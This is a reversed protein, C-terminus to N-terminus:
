TACKWASTCLIQMSDRKASGHRCCTGMSIQSLRALYWSGKRLVEELSCLAIAGAQWTLVMDKRSRWLPLVSLCDDTCLQMRYRWEEGDFAQQEPGLHLGVIEQLRAHVDRDDVYTATSNRSVTLRAPRRLDIRATVLSQSFQARPSAAIGHHAIVDPITGRVAEMGFKPVAPPNQRIWREKGGKIESLVIFHGGIGPNGLPFGRRAYRETSIMPNPWEGALQEAQEALVLMKRGGNDVVVPFEVFVCWNRVLEDIPKSLPQRLRVEIRTGPERRSGKEVLIYSRPGTLRLRIAGERHLSSPKHTEIVVDDSVAFVSLFGIGFRSTPHFRYAQRFEATTYYSRGVQLLYRQVIATDMGLGCDDVSVVQVVETEGSGPHTVKEERLGVRLQYRMRVAEPVDTPFAPPPQGAAALDAYMRCRMADLANQILERLFVDPSDYVDAVLRQFVQDQDLEFRWDGPIYTAGPAPNITVTRSQGNMKALPPRWEKMTRPLRAPLSEIERVIWTCWDHLTRHEEQTRCEASIEIREPTTLRHTISEYQTWHAFSDAPLPCAAQMLLPCARDCRLDLLDGLRLLTSLLRLNVTEGLIDRAEPFRVDDELDLSDLGHAVCVDAIAARLMPQEFDLQALTLTQGRVLEGARRHHQRRVYEATLFRILRDAAFHKLVDDGASRRLLDIEKWRKAAGATVWAHWGDSALIGQKEDDSVVMGADHLYAAAILIYVEVANLKLVPKSGKQAFVLKGVQLVIEDSHDITHSTYHGFTQPVYTLWRQVKARLEALKGYLSSEKKKLFEALLSSPLTQPKM